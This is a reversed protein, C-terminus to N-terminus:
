FDGYNQKEVNTKFGCYGVHYDVQRIQKLNGGLEGLFTLGVRDFHWTTRLFRYFCLCMLTDITKAIIM